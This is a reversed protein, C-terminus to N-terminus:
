LQGFISQNEIRGVSLRIGWFFPSRFHHPCSALMICSYQAEPLKLYLISGLKSLDIPAWRFCQLFVQLGIEKEIRKPIVHDPTPIKLCECQSLHAYLILGFKSGIFDPPNSVNFQFWPLSGVHALYVLLSLSLLLVVVFLRCYVSAFRWSIFLLGFSGLM